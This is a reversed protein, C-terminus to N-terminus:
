KREKGPSEPYKPFISSLPQSYVSIFVLCGPTDLVKKRYLVSGTAKIVGLVTQLIVSSKSLSKNGTTAQTNIVGIRFKLHFVTIVSPM